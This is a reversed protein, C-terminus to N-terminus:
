PTRLRMARALAWAARLPRRSRAADVAIIKWYNRAMEPDRAFRESHKDLLLAAANGRLGTYKRFRKSGVEDQHIRIGVTSQTTVSDEGLSDALRWSLDTNEACHLRDDYGGVKLFTDRRVFFTGSLLTGSAAGGLSPVLAGIPPSQVGSPTALEYAVVILEVREDDVAILREAWSPLPEDDDDVFALWKGTAITAGTNRAHAPGRHPTHVVAAGMATARAATADTSGDDVVVHQVALGATSSRVRNICREIRTEGNFTPTIV